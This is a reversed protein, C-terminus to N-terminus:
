QLQSMMADFAAKVENYADEATAPKVSPWSKMANEWTGWVNGWEKFLPRNPAADYSAYVSAIVDQELQDLSEFADAPANPIIKGAAEFWDPAFTPNMIEQIFEQALAMKAADEEIRSNVAFGWGGKWHKLPLGNITVEGIPALGMDEGAHGLLGNTSWPGEIRLVNEGGTKFNNDMYGWVDDTFVPSEIDQHAQYYAFLAEFLGQQEATLDAFDKTLDSFFTGDENMGLMEIDASNTMAVGFWTNWLPILVTNADATTLEVPQSLDIGKTAANATNTFTILTEINMPFALYDGDIQLLGGLGADYDGFGGINNAMEKAPLSALVFNEALGYMRDAPIAFVDTVDPNTADTSDILDLNDFSGTEKIIIKADPNNLMVRYAAREYVALWPTEAQVTIEVTEPAAMEEKAPENSCAVLSLALVAVMLLSLLKKM